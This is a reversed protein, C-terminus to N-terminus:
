ICGLKSCHELASRALGEATWTALDDDGLQGFYSRVFASAGAADAPSVLECIQAMVDDRRAVFGVMGNVADEDAREPHRRIGPRISGAHVVGLLWRALCKLSM